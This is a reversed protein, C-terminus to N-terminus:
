SATSLVFTCVTCAPIHSYLSTYSHSHSASPSPFPSSQNSPQSPLLSDSSKRASPPAAHLSQLPHTEIPRYYSALYTESKYDIISVVLSSHLNIIVPSYSNTRFPSGGIIPIVFISLPVVLSSRNLGLIFTGGGDTVTEAPLIGAVLAGYLTGDDSRHAYM